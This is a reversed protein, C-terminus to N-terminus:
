RGSSNGLLGMLGGAPLVAALGETQVKNAFQGVQEVVPILTESLRGVRNVDVLLHALVVALDADRAGVSVLADRVNEPLEYIETLDNETTVTM